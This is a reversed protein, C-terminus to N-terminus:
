SRTYYDIIAENLWVGPLLTQIDARYLYPKAGLLDGGARQVVVLPDGVGYLVEETVALEAAPLYRMLAQNASRADERREQSLLDEAEDSKRKADRMRQVWLNVDSQVQTFQKKGGVYACLDVTTTKLKAANKSGQGQGLLDIISTRDGNDLFPDDDDIVIIEKKSSIWTLASRIKPVYDLSTTTTVVVSGAAVDQKDAHMKKAAANSPGTKSAVKSTSQVELSEIINTTAKEVPQVASTKLASPATKETFTEGGANLAPISATPAMSQGTDTIAESGLVTTSTISATPATSKGIDTTTESGPVTKSVVAATPVKAQGIDTTPKSGPVTTSAVSATPVKPQGIDTTPKSGPVTTSAVSATPPSDEHATGASPDNAKNTDGDSPVVTLGTKEGETANELPGVTAITSDSATAAKSAISATPPTVKDMAGASAEVTSIPAKDAPADVLANSAAPPTEDPTRRTEGADKGAGAGKMEIPM